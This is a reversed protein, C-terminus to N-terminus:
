LNSSPRSLAAQNARSVCKACSCPVGARTRMDHITDTTKNRLSNLRAALTFQLQELQSPFEKLAKIKDDWKRIPAATLDMITIDRAPRDIRWWRNKVEMITTIYAPVNEVYLELCPILEAAIQNRLVRAKNLYPDVTEQAALLSVGRLAIVEHLVKTFGDTRDVVTLSPFGCGALLEKRHADIQAASLGAARTWNMARCSMSWERWFRDVQASSLRM